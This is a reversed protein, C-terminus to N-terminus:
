LPGSLDASSSNLCQSPTVKLAQFPSLAISRLSAPLFWNLVPAGVEAQSAVVTPSRARVGLTPARVRRVPRELGLYQQLSASHGYSM